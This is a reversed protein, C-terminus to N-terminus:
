PSILKVLIDALTRMHSLSSLRKTSGRRLLAAQGFVCHAIHLPHAAHEGAPRCSGCAVVLMHGAM